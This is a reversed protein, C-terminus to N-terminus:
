LRDCRETRVYITFGMNALQDISLVMERLFKVLTLENM